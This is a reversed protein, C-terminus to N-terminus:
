HAEGAAGVVVVDFPAGAVPIRHAVTMTKADVAHVLGKAPDTVAIRDGSASVRPRAVTSGGEMSYRETVQLSAEIKGTLASIKHLLGEETVVYGFDGLIAERAFHTRRSPLQAFTFGKTKPDIVVMGDPGFDGLLSATQRGPALNRVMREKPLDAPYAVKEFRAGAKDTKLFLVGDECGFAAVGTLKAEGHLRPCEASRAASRGDRDLLDIGVPLQRPDAPHPITMAMQDGIPAALGHHPAATRIVRAGNKGAVLAKEAMVRALGEGDFFVAVQGGGLNIHSPKAGEVVGGTMRPAKASVDLHDGHGEITVGTDILDVRNQAGQSLFVHRGTESAKLRAPGEVGFHAVSKGTMLDLVTIKGSAHDAVVARHVSVSGAFAPLPGACLLASLTLVPLRM